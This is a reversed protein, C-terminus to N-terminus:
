RGSFHFFDFILAIGVLSVFFIWIWLPFFSGSALSALSILFSALGIEFSLRVYIKKPHKSRTIFKFLKASIGWNKNYYPLKSFVRQGDETLCYRTEPGNIKRFLKAGPANVFLDMYTETRDLSLGFINSLEKLSLGGDGNIGLAVVADYTYYFIPLLEVVGPFGGIIDPVKDPKFFTILEEIYEAGKPTIRYVLEGNKNEGDILGKSKLKWIADTVSKRRRKTLVSLEGATKAEGEKLIALIQVQLTGKTTDVVKNLEKLKEIMTILSM